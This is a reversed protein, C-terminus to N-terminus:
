SKKYIVKKLCRDTGNKGCGFHKEQRFGWEIFCQRQLYDPWSNSKGSCLWNSFSQTISLRLKQSPPSTRQWSSTLKYLVRKNTNRMEFTSFRYCTCVPQSWTSTKSAASDSIEAEVGAFLKIHALMFLLSPMPAVTHVKSVPVTQGWKWHSQTGNSRRWDYIFLLIIKCKRESIYRRM